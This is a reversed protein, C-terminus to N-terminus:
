VRQEEVTTFEYDDSAEISEDSGCVGVLKDMGGNGSYNSVGGFTDYAKAIIYDDVDGENEKIRDIEEKSVEVECVVTCKLTGSVEYIPM